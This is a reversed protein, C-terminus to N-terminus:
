PDRRAERSTELMRKMQRAVGGPDDSETLARLVSVRTAGAAIVQALNELDIGGIAYFPCPAKEAAYRVLKHGVAPRGPKTPTALVPGVGIYDAESQAAALVQEESHTSLGILRSPGMQRRAEVTGLDDQGLHVGDSAAAIAVDVRDNVIFLAEFEETRRRVVEAFRLLTGAEMDKERLQVADVGAALVRPLFEDLSGAKPEAPTVLYLFATQLREHAFSQPSAV